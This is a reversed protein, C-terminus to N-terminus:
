FTCKFGLFQMLEYLICRVVKGAPVSSLSLPLLLHCASQDLTLTKCLLFYADQGREADSSVALSSYFCNPLCTLFVACDGWFCDESQIIRVTGINLVQAPPLSGKICHTQFYLLPCRTIFYFEM